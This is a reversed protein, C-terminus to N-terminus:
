SGSGADTIRLKSVLTQGGIDVDREDAAAFVIVVSYESGSSPPLLPHAGRPAGLLARRRSHLHTSGGARVTRLTGRKLLLVM